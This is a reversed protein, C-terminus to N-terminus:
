PDAGSCGSIEMCDNVQLGGTRGFVPSDETSHLSSLHHTTERVNCHNGKEKRQMDSPSFALAKLNLVPDNLRKLNLM